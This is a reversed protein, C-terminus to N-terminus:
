RRRRRAPRPHLDPRIVAAKFRLTRVGLAAAADHATALGRSSGFGLPGRLCWGLFAFSGLLMAEGLAVTVWIVPTPPLEAAVDDPLGIGFEGRAVGLLAAQLHGTPWAFEGTLLSLLMGQVILPTFVALALLVLGLIGIVAPLDAALPAPHAHFRDARSRDVSM